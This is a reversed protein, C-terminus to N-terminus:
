FKMQELVLKEGQLRAQAPKGRLEAPVAGDGSRYLGAISVLQAEMCAAFIRAETNGSAGAIARGRLPAYVHINGDAIVEAGFSVVALVVLDSGKAYVRQGSRLPTDVFMTAFAPAPPPEPEAQAEPPGAADAQDAAEVVSLAGASRALAVPAQALGAACAAAMQDASGGRAVVPVMRYDRLLATLAAFDITEAAASVQSLDIAVPDGEFMDSGAGFRAALESALAALDTTKLAVVILTLAASRLEFVAPARAVQAVSM